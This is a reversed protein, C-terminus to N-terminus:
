ITKLDLTLTAGALVVKLDKVDGGPLRRRNKGLLVVVLVVAAVAKEKEALIDKKVIDLGPFRRSLGSDKVVVGVFVLVVVIKVALLMVKVDVFKVVVIANKDM